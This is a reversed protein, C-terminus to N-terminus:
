GNASHQQLLRHNFPAAHRAKEPEYLTPKSHINNNGFRDLKKKDFLRGACFRTTERNGTQPLKTQWCLNYLIIKLKLNKHYRLKLM